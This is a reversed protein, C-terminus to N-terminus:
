WVNKVTSDLTSEMTMASVCAVCVTGRVLACPVVERMELICVRPITGQVIVLEEQSAKMVNVGLILALGM